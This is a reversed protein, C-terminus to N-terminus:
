SKCNTTPRQTRHPLCNKVADRITFFGPLDTAYPWQQLLELYKEANTLDAADRLCAPGNLAIWLGEIWLRLPKRNRQALGYKLLPLVRMLRARGDDTLQPTDSQSPAFFIM